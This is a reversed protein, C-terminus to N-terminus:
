GGLLWSPRQFLISLVLCAGLILPFGHWFVLQSPFWDLKTTLRLWVAV